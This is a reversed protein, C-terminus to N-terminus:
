KLKFINQAKELEKEIDSLSYEGRLYEEILPKLKKNFLLEVNNQTIKNANQGKTPIEINMFYSHGIEYSKGLGLTLAIFNNLNECITIYNNLNREEVDKFKEDNLIVEYKCDMREWIFRRRLALDFSDISRDIDNMTGIFYLNIPVGFKYEGKDVIVADNENKYLYSYQTGILMSGDKINGKDDFDVRKSEEICLLLEGFVTSLEARNIEDALFYYSIPERKEKRANKLENMAEKCFKKFIGDTLVLETAGNKISPKLGEIFDEYGFSPHFQTFFSKANELLMKQKIANQVTYTKGTGPAGYYIINKSEFSISTGFKEWLFSALKQSQQIDIDENIEFEKKIKELILETAKYSSFDIEDKIDFFESISELVEKKFIPILKDVNYMYAIKRAYNIDLPRVTKLNYNDGIDEYKSLAVIIPLVKKKFYEQAKDNSLYDKSKKNNEDFAKYKDEAIKKENEDQINNPNVKYIGYAYSSATRFKGCNETKRELWHTFYEDNDNIKINTYEELTLKELLNVPYKEIFGNYQEVSNWSKDWTNWQKKLQEIKNSM